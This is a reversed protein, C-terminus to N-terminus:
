KYSSFHFFDDAATAAIWEAAVVFSAAVAVTATAAPLLKNIHQNCTYFTFYNKLM